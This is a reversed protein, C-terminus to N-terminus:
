KMDADTLSTIGKILKDFAKPYEHMFVWFILNNAKVGKNIYYNKDIKDFKCMLNLMIDTIEDVTISDM